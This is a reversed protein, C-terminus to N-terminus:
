ILPTSYLINLCDNIAHLYLRIVPTCCWVSYQIYLVVDPEKVLTIECRYYKIEPQQVTRYIKHITQNIAKM